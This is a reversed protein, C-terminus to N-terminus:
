GSAFKGYLDDNAVGFLERARRLTDERSQRGANLEKISGLFSSFQEYSLRARAQRFFEKGDVRPSTGPVGGSSGGGSGSLVGGGGGGGAVAGSGGGSRAGGGGSSSSAGIGLAGAGGGSSAGGGAAAAAAASSGPGAVAAGPGAARPSM